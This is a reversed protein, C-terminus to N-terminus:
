FRRRAMPASESAPVSVPEGVAVAPGNRPDDTLAQAGAPDTTTFGDDGAAVGHLSDALNSLLENCHAITLLTEAAAHAGLDGALHELHRANTALDQLENKIAQTMM